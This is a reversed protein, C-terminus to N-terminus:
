GSKGKQGDAQRAKLNAQIAEDLFKLFFEGAKVRDNWVTDKSTTIHEVQLFESQESLVITKREEGKQADYILTKYFDAGDYNDTPQSSVGAEELMRSSAPAIKALGFDLIKAHGRKTVFVNAPKMDRHVIGAAHAADLADAIEIGLSLVMEIDLPKGAIRHKLTLGGLFEM